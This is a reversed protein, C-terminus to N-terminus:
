VKRPPTAASGRNEVYLAAAQARRTIHLKGFVSSLYNKVTQDSLDMTDAIEKNTKGEAVLALVRREQPSLPSLRDPEGHLNGHKVLNFVSSTIAPDIIFRGAAVDLIAQRLAKIDIEKLLYGRVGANIAEQILLDDIVSTLVLVNTEPEQELIRRCADFGRGDPLRIDMLVVKPKLKIAEAVATAVSEAEGVVKIQAAGRQERLTTRLGARVLASDDVLLVTITPPTATTTM